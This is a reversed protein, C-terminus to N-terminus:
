RRKCELTGGRRVFALEALLDGSNLGVVNLHKKSQALLRDGAVSIRVPNKLVVVETPTGSELDFHSITGSRNVFIRENEIDSILRSDSALKLEHLVLGDSSQMVKVIGSEQQALRDSALLVDSDVMKTGQLLHTSQHHIEQGGVEYHNLQDGDLMEIVKSSEQDRYFFAAHSDSMHHEAVEEDEHLEDCEFKLASFGPGVTGPSCRSESDAQRYPELEGRIVGGASGSLVVSLESAWGLARANLTSCALEVLEDDKLSWCFANGGVNGILIWQGDPSLRASSVRLADEKCERILTESDLDLLYVSVGFDVIALQRSLLGAYQIQEAM